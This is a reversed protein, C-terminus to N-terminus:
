NRATNTSPSWKATATSWSRSPFRTSATTNRASKYKEDYINAWPIKKAELYKELPYPQPRPQHWRYRFRSGQLRGHLKILHPTEKVCPPCWTAWYDVLVVKGRYSKWDFDKGDMTKGKIVM